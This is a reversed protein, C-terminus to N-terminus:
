IVNEDAMFDWSLTLKPFHKALLFKGFYSAAILLRAAKPKGTKGKKTGQEIQSYAEECGEM